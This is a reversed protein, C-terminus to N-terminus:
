KKNYMLNLCKEKNNAAIFYSQSKYIKSLKKILVM